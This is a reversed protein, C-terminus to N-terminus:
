CFGVPKQIGLEVERNRAWLMSVTISFPVTSEKQTPSKYLTALRSHIFFFQMETVGSMNKFPINAFVKCPKCTVIVSRLTTYTRAHAHSPSFACMCVCDYCFLSVVSWAASCFLPKFLTVTLAIGLDTFQCKWSGNQLRQDTAFFSSARHPLVSPTPSPTHRFLLAPSHWELGPYKLM